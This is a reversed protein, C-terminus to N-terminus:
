LFQTESHWNSKLGQKKKAQTPQRREAVGLGGNRLKKKGAISELGGGVGANRSGCKGNQKTRHNTFVGDRGKDGGDSSGSGVGQGKSGSSKDVEDNCHDDWNKKGTSSSRKNPKKAPNTLPPTQDGEL